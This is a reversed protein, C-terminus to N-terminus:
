LLKFRHKHSILNPVGRIVLLFVWSNLFHNAMFHFLVIIGSNWKDQGPLQKWQSYMCQGRHSYVCGPKDCKYNKSCLYRSPFCALSYVSMCGQCDFQSAVLFIEAAKQMTSVFNGFSCTKVFKNFTLFSMHLCRVYPMGSFDNVTRKSYLTPSTGRLLLKLQALIFHIHM